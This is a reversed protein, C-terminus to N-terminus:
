VTAETHHTSVPKGDNFKWGELVDKLLHPATLRRFRKEAVTLLKWILFTASEVWKYWKVERTGLRMSSFPIEVVNTTGTHKRHVEPFDYFAVMHDWDDKLAKVAKPYRPECRRNFARRAKM